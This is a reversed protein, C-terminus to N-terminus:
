YTFEKQNDRIVRDGMDQYRARNEAIEHFGSGRKHAYLIEDEFHYACGDGRQLAIYYGDPANIGGFEEALEKASYCFNDYGGANTVESTVVAVVNVVHLKAM